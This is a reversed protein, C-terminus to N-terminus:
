AIDFILSLIFSSPVRLPALEKHFYDPMEEFLLDLTVM